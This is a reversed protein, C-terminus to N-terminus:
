VRETAERIFLDILRRIPFGAREALRPYLSAETFGPLTNIENFYIVGDRSLFFDIRSLQSLGLASVLRAATERIFDGHATDKGSPLIIRASSSSGYKESYDYFGSEERIEGIETFLQKCKVSIYACELEAEVDIKEEILVRGDLEVAATYAKSFEENSLM